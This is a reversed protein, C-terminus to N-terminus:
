KELLLAEIAKEIATANNDGAHTEGAFSARVRGQGDVLYFAPWYRNGMANWYAYDNDIMVPYRIGLEAVKREVNHRDYEQQLEPTHISVIRFGRSGYRPQLTQLWPLTRECNWCAFTWFEVLTVSGRLQEWTLPKSNLWGSPGHETFAPAPQAEAASAPAPRAFPPMLLLAGAAAGIVFAWTSITRM